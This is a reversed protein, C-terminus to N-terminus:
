KRISAKLPPLVSVSQECAIQTMKVHTVTFNASVHANQYKGDRFLLWGEGWDKFTQPLNHKFWFKLVFNTQWFSPFTQTKQTRFSYDPSITHPRFYNQFYLILFCKQSNPLNPFLDKLLSWLCMHLVFMQIDMPFWRINVEGRWNTNKGHYSVTTFPGAIM